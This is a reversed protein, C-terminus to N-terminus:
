QVIFTAGGLSWKCVLMIPSFLWWFPPIGGHGWEPQAVATLGVRGAYTPPLYNYRCSENNNWGCTSTAYLKNTVYAMVQTQIAIQTMLRSIETIPQFECEKHVDTKPYMPCNLRFHLKSLKKWVLDSYISNNRTQFIATEYLPYQSLKLRLCIM